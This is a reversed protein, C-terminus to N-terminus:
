FITALREFSKNLRISLTQTSWKLLQLALQPQERQLSSFNDLSLTLLKSDEFCVATLPRPLAELLGSEGILTGRSYIGVVFQKGAFETAKKEEIRGSLIVAAFSSTEGENWLTEGHAIDLLELYPLLEKAGSVDLFNNNALAEIQDAQTATTTSKSSSM